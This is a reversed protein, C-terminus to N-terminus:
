IIWIQPLEETEMIGDLHMSPFLFLITEIKRLFLSPFQLFHFSKKLNNM